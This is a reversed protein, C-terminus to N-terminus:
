LEDLPVSTAPVIDDYVQLLVRGVLGTTLGIISDGTDLCRDSARRAGL